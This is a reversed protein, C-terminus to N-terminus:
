DRKASGKENYNIKEDNEIERYCHCEAKIKVDDVGM